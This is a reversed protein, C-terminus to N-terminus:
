SEPYGPKRLDIIGPFLKLRRDSNIAFTSHGTSFSRGRGDYVRAHITDFRLCKVESGRLLLPGPPTMVNFYYQRRRV